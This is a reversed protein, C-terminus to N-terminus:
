GLSPNFPFVGMKQSQDGGSVTLSVGGTKIGLAPPLRTVSHMFSIWKAGGLLGQSRIIGVFFPKLWPQPIISGGGLVFPKLWPKMDHHRSASKAVM